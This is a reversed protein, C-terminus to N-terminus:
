ALALFQLPSSESSLPTKRALLKAHLEFTISVYAYQKFKMSVLLTGGSDKTPDVDFRSLYIDGDDVIYFLRSQAKYAILPNEERPMFVISSSRDLQLDSNPQHTKPQDSPTSNISSPSTALVKTTTTAASSTTNINGPLEAPLSGCLSVNQCGRAPQGAANCCYVICIVFM